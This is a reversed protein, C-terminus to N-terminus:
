EDAVVLLIIPNGYEDTSEQIDLVEECWPVGAAIEQAQEDTDAAFSCGYIGKPTMFQYRPM